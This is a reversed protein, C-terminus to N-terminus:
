GGARRLAAKVRALFRPPDIPKRIYDDAGAEILAVETDQEASGTLVIVPMGATAAAGRIASLLEVGGVVDMHLDTVVLDWKEGAALRKLVPAGDTEEEAAFGAGTLAAVALHRIMQDDDVVLVRKLATAPVPQEAPDPSDKEGSDGLVREIETITTLGESVRERAVDRLVRMGYSVAAAQLEAATAGRAILRTIAPTMIAVENIPLRGKYGTQGCAKCGPGGCETCVRRVLRQAVAGRLSSAITARDLGLDILRAVSSMADNTHLTALVLHGTLAAQAAVQATETDRIEGVFIVDPDQRLIARLASAFTVNRKTEVQMQTIGPLEYEIPDEVTMVNVDESAIEKIASYLTTTKGSGTPGTVIVIGDRLSLLQRMRALEQGKLGCEDLGRTNDPRLVRIVVKEAERTPVTSVRLDYAKGNVEVRARGDQPRMRDSIDMKSLVKIRSVIRNLSRSELQMHTRMVGDIRFRVGGRKSGPEIHIDSAGTVVANRLILSTLKVVPGAQVDEETIAEPDLTELMRVTEALETDSIEPAATVADQPSYGADIAEAIAAPPAFRLVVRRGSAFGVAQEMDMDDPNATAVVIERDSETLPYVQLRRALKEPILRLALPNATSFDAATVRLSISVREALTAAPRTVSLEKEVRIM